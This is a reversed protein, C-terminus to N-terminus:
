RGILNIVEGSRSPLLASIKMKIEIRIIVWRIDTKHFFSFLFPGIVILRVGRGVKKTLKEVKATKNFKENM